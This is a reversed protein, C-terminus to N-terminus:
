AVETATLLLMAVVVALPTPPELEVTEVVTALPVDTTEDDTAEDDTAEEVETEDDTEEVTAEDDELEVTADDEAEEDAEDELEVPVPQMGVPGSTQSPM